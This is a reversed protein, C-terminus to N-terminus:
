GVLGWRCSRRQQTLTTSVLDSHAFSRMQYCVAGRGCCWGSEQARGGERRKDRFHIYNLSTKPFAVLTSRPAADTEPPSNTTKELVLAGQLGNRGRGALCPLSTPCSSAVMVVVTKKLSEMGDNRQVDGGNEAAKQQEPSWVTM